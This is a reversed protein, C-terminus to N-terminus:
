LSLQPFRRCPFRSDQSSPLEPHPTTRNPCLGLSLGRPCWVLENICFLIVRFVCGSHGLDVCRQTTTSIGCTWAAWATWLPLCPPICLRGCSTMYMTPMTRLLTCPNTTSFSLSRFLYSSIQPRTNSHRSIASYLFFMLIVPSSVSSISLFLSLFLSVRLTFLFPSLSHTLKLCLPAAEAKPGTQTCLRILFGQVNVCRWLVAPLSSLSPGEVLHVTVKVCCSHSLHSSISFAVLLLPFVTFPFFLHKLNSTQM